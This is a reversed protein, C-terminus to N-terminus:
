KLLKISDVNVSYTKAGSEVVISVGKAGKPIIFHYNTLDATVIISEEVKEWQGDSTQYEVHILAGVSTANYAGAKFEIADFEHSTNALSIKATKSTTSKLRACFEGDRKDNSDGGVLTSVLSWTNGGLKIDGDKYGGTTSSIGNKDKAGADEFDLSAVTQYDQKPDNAFVYVELDVAKSANNLSLTATLKVKQSTTGHSVVGTATNILESNSSWKIQVDEFGEIQTQLSIKNVNSAVSPVVGLRTSLIELKDADSVPTLTIDGSNVIQVQPTHTKGYGFHAFVGEFSFKQGPLASALKQNIKAFENGALTPDVRFSTTYEGIKATFSYAKSDSITIEEIVADGTVLAGQYKLTKEENNTEQGVINQKTATINENLEKFLSVDGLEHMGQSYKKLGGVEYVKGKEVTGLSIAQNYIYYGDNGNQIYYNYVTDGNKNTTEAVHTVVGKVKLPSEKNSNLYNDHTTYNIEDWKIESVVEDAKEITLEITKSINTYNKSTATITVKGEKKATVTGSKVTAISEDSSSWVVSQSAEAPTVDATLEIKEGVKCTTKDSTIEIATPEVEVVDAKEIILTVSKTIKSNITSTATIKVNGESVATVLGDASVTAISEANSSWTVSSDASLQLTQGVKITDVNGPVSIVIANIENESTQPANTPEVEGCSALAFTGLIASAALVKLFSRRKKM